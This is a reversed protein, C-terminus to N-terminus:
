LFSVYKNIEFFKQIILNACHLPILISINKLIIIVFEKKEYFQKNKKKDLEKMSQSVVTRETLFFLKM